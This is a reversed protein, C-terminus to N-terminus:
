ESQFRPTRFRPRRLGTGDACMRSPLVTLRRRCDSAGVPCHSLAWPQPTRAAVRPQADWADGGVGILNHGQASTGAGLALVMVPHSMPRHTLHPQLVRGPHQSSPTGQYGPRQGPSAYLAREPSRVAPGARGAPCVLRVGGGRCWVRGRTLPGARPGDYARDGIGWRPLAISGLTAANAGSGQTPRGVCRGWGWRPQPRSRRGGSSEAIGKPQPAHIVTGDDLCIEQCPGANSRLPLASHRTSYKAECARFRVLM